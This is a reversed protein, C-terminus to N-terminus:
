DGVVVCTDLHNEVHLSVIPHARLQQGDGHVELGTAGWTSDVTGLARDILPGLELGESRPEVVGSVVEAVSRRWKDCERRM